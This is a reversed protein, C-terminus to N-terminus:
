EDVEMLYAERNKREGWYVCNGLERDDRLFVSSECPQAITTEDEGERHHVSSADVVADRQSSEGNDVDFSSSLFDIYSGHEVFLCCVHSINSSFPYSM